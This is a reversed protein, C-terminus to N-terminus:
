VLPFVEERWVKERTKQSLSEQPSGKISFVSSFAANLIEAKKTDETVLTGAGTRLPGM